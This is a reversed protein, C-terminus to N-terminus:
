PHTDHSQSHDRETAPQQAQAKQRLQRGSAHQEHQSHQTRDQQPRAEVRQTQEQETQGPTTARRLQRQVVTQGDLQVALGQPQLTPDGAQRLLPRTDHTEVQLLGLRATRLQRLAQTQGPVIRWRQDGALDPTQGHTELPRATLDIWMGEVIFGPEGRPTDAGSTRHLSALPQVDGLPRGTPAVTQAVAQQRHVRAAAFAGQRRQHQSVARPQAVDIPLNELGGAGDM